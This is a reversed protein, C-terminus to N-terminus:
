SAPRELLVRFAFKFLAAQRPLRRPNALARYLWELNLRIWVPPARRAAGALVDFTGGVGQIVRACLAGRHQAIWREQRPSGLAVFLMDAASANIREVLASSEAEDSYGHQRGAVVLGPYTAILRSAAARNVDERAGFLFIRYGRQAALACLRPMLESGPVRGALRHGRRRLAHVVGIGDPILYESANLATRLEADHEATVIKEPNVALIACQRDERVAQDAAHEMTAMDVCDVGVGFLYARDIPM